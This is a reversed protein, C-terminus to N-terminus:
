TKKFYNYLTGKKRKSSTKNARLPSFEQQLKWSKILERQIEVPLEKFVEPDTDPPIDRSAVDNEADLRAINKSQSQCCTVDYKSNPLADKSQDGTATVLKKPPIIDNSQGCSFTIDSKSNGAIAGTSEIGSGTADNHFTPPVAHHSHCSSATMDNDLQASSITAGEMVSHLQPNDSASKKNFRAPDAANRKAEPAGTEFPPNQTFKGTDRYESDCDTNETWMRQCSEPSSECQSVDLANEQTSDGATAVHKSDRVHCDSGSAQSRRWKGGSGTKRSGTISQDDGDSDSGFRPEPTRFSLASTDYVTDGNQIERQIDVPLQSFVVPDVELRTDAENQTLRVTPSAESFSGSRSLAPPSKAIFKELGSLKRRVSAGDPTRKTEQSPPQESSVDSGDPPYFELRTKKSPPGRTISVDTDFQVSSSDTLRKQESVDKRNNNPILAGSKRDGHRKTATDLQGGCSDVLGILKAEHPNSRPTADRKGSTGVGQSKSWSDPFRTQQTRTAGSKSDSHRQANAVTGKQLFASISAPSAAAPAKEQLKTFCVNLLTIHFGQTVDVMKRFLDLSMQLLAAHCM